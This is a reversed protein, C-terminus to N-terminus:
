LYGFCSGAQEAQNFQFFPFCIKKKIKKTLFDINTLFDIQSQNKLWEAHVHHYFNDFVRDRNYCLKQGIWCVGREADSHM